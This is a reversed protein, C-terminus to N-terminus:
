IFLSHIKYVGCSRIPPSSLKADYKNPQVQNGHYIRQPLGSVFSFSSSSSPPSSSFYSMMRHRHAMMLRNVITEDLVIILAAITQYVFFILM